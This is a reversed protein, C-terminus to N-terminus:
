IEQVDTVLDFLEDFPFTVVFLVDTISFSKNGYEQYLTSTVAYVTSYPLAAFTIPCVSSNPLSDQCIHYHLFLCPWVSQPHIIIM